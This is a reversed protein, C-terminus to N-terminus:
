RHLTGGEPFIQLGIQQLQHSWTAREVDSEPYSGVFLALTLLFSLVGRRVFVRAFLFPIAPPVSPLPGGLVLSLDALLAGALFALVAIFSGSLYFYAAISFV